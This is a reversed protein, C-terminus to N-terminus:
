QEIRVTGVTNGNSDLLVDDREPADCVCGDCRSMQRIVKDSAQGLVKALEYGFGDEFAANDTDFEIRVKM